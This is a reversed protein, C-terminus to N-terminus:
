DCRHIINARRIQPPGGRIPTTSHKALPVRAGTPTSVLINGIAEPSNRREEPFRLNLAFRREAEFVRTAEKGGIATEVIEQIDSVNVGYRAVKRRDIEVTLYQQGAVQEM